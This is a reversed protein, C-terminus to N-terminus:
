IYKKKESGRRNVKERENERRGESNPRKEDTQKEASERWTRHCKLKRNREAEEEM